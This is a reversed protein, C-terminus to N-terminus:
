DIIQEIEQNFAIALGIKNIHCFLRLLKYISVKRRIKILIFAM